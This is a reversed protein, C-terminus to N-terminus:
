FIANTQIKVLVDAAITGTLNRLSTAIQLYLDQPNSIKRTSGTHKACVLM